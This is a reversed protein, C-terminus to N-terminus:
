NKFSQRQSKERTGCDALMVSVLTILLYRKTGDPGRRWEPSESVSCRGCKKKGRPNVSCPHCLTYNEGWHWEVSSKTGCSGCKNKPPQVHVGSDLHEGGSSPSNSPYYSDIIGEEYMAMNASQLLGEMPSIISGRRAARRAASRPREPLSASQRMAVSSANSRQSASGRRGMNIPM